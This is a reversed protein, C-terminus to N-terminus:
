FIVHVQKWNLGVVSLHLFLPLFVVLFCHKSCFPNICYSCSACVTHLFTVASAIIHSLSSYINYESKENKVHLTSCLCSVYKVEHYVNCLFAYCFNACARVKKTLGMVHAWYYWAIFKCPRYSTQFTRVM